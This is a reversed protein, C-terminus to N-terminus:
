TEVETWIRTAHTEKLLLGGAALTLGTVVMPYHPGGYINGTAACVSAGRSMVTV